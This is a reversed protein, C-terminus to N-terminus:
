HPARDRDAIHGWSVHSGVKYYLRERAHAQLVVSQPSWSYCARSVPDAPNLASEVYYLRIVAGMWRIKHALRRLIRQQPYLDAHARGWVLQGIAGMNDLILEVHPQDIGRVLDLAALAGFLEASQQNDVWVPARRITPGARTWLGVMYRGPFQPDPAADAFIRIPPTTSSLAPEWGRFSAAIAELLSRVVSFPTRHSSMPGHRLWQRPGALFAGVSAGPRGLWVIKGLLRQLSKFRYPRLAVTLWRSVVDAVFAVSPAIRPGSLNLAKGMWTVNKSPTFDSKPSILYGQQQLVHAAPQAMSQVDDRPGVFLIDDLYQIILVSSPPLTELVRAILHQVLGPAQHWGFPVRVFAYRDTAAAVRICNLMDPPLHISWYCNRLDIKCAYVDRCISRLSAALGELTPLRFRRAKSACSRNFNVMNVILAAKEASKYKVFVQANAPEDTPALLGDQFLARLM